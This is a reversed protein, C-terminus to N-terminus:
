TPRIGSTEPDSHFLLLDDAYLSVNRDLGGRTIGQMLSSRLGAALPEVAVAFLPSRPCRQRTGRGLHFYESHDNNTRLHPLPSAYLLKIWFIFSCGFGFRRLTYFLYSWEVQDFAKEADMLIIVKPTDASSPSYIINLLWRINHFSHRNKIFGTQDPNIIKTM